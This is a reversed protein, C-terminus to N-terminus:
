LVAYSKRIAKKTDEDAAVAIARHFLQKATETDGEEAKQIGYKQYAIALNNRAPEYESNIRYNLRLATIMRGYDDSNSFSMIISNHLVGIYSHRMDIAQSFPGESEILKGENLLRIGEEFLQRSVNIIQEPKVSYAFGVFNGEDDEIAVDYAETPENFETAVVGRQGRALGYRPLDESLEVVDGERAKRDTATTAM